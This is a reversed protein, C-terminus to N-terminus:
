ATSNNGSAGVSTSSRFSVEYDIGPDKDLNVQVRACDM